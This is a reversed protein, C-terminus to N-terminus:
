FARRVLCRGYLRLGAAARMRCRGGRHRRRSSGDSGTGGFGGRADRRRTFHRANVGDRGDLRVFIGAVQGFVRAGIWRALSEERRVAQRRCLGLPDSLVALFLEGTDTGSRIWRFHIEYDDERMVHIEEAARKGGFNMAVM